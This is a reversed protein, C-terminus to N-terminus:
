QDLVIGARGDRRHPHVDSQGHSQRHRNSGPRQCLPHWPPRIGGAGTASPEHKPCLSRVELGFRLHRVRAEAMLAALQPRGEKRGSVAVDLYEGVVTMKMRSAYARLEHVQLDPRQDQTSVRLYFAARCESAMIVTWFLIGKRVCLQRENVRQLSTDKQTADALGKKSV